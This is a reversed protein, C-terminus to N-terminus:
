TRRIGGQSNLDIAIAEWEARTMARDPDEDFHGKILFDMHGMCVRRSSELRAYFHARQKQNRMRRKELKRSKSVHNDGEQDMGGEDMMRDHPARTSFALTSVSRAQWWTQLNKKRRDHM